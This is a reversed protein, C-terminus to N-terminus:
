KIEGKLITDCNFCRIGEEKENYFVIFETDEECNYCYGLVRAIDLLQRNLWKVFEVENPYNTNVYVVENEYHSLLMKLEDNSMLEYFKM